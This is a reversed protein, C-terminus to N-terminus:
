TTDIVASESQDAPAPSSSIAIGTGRFEELRRRLRLHAQWVEQSVNELGLLDLDEIRIHNRGVKFRPDADKDM